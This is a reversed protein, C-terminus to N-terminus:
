WMIALVLRLVPEHKSWQDDTTSRKVMYDRLGIMFSSRKQETPLRNHQTNVVYDGLGIMFSSRKAGNTIREAENEWVACCFM